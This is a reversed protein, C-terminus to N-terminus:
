SFERKYLKCWDSHGQGLRNNGSGCECEVPKIDQITLELPVFEVAQPHKAILAGGYCGPGPSKPTIDNWFGLADDWQHIFKPSGSPDWTIHIEKDQPKIPSTIGGPYSYQQQACFSDIVILRNREGSGRCDPCEQIAQAAPVAGHHEVEGRGRCLECDNSLAVSDLVSKMVSDMWESFSVNKPMIYKEMAVKRAEKKWIAETDWIIQFSDDQM